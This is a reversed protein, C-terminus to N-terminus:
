RQPSGSSARGPGSAVESRRSNGSTTMASSNVYSARFAPGLSRRSSRPRVFRQSLGGLGAPHLDAPTMPGGAALGKAPLHGGSGPLRTIALAVILGAIGLVPLYWWLPPGHDYGLANPPHTFLERQIQYILELFCWAALSAVVGILAVVVLLGVYQKSRMTQAVQQVTPSPVPTADAM